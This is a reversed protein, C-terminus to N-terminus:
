IAFLTARSIRCLITAYLLNFEDSTRFEVISFNILQQMFNDTTAMMQQFPELLVSHSVIEFQEAIIQQREQPTVIDWVGKGPDTSWLFDTVSMPMRDVFKCVAYKKDVCSKRLYDAGPGDEIVRALLYPPPTAPSVLLRGRRSTSYFSASSGLPSPLAMSFLGYAAIRLRSRDFVLLFGTILSLLLVASFLHSRHFLFSAVVLFWLAVRDFGTLRQPFAILLAVAIIYLGAFVDPMLYGVFFPLSSLTTLAGILCLFGASSSRPLLRRCVLHLIWSATLAQVAVLLWVGAIQDSLYLLIAYYVSRGTDITGAQQKRAVAANSSLLDDGPVTRESASSGCIPSGHCVVKSIFGVAKQGGTYYSHTDFFFFPYGNGIAVFSLAAAGVFNLILM